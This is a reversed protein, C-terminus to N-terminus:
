SEVQFLLDRFGHEGVSGRAFVEGAKPFAVPNRGEIEGAVGAEGADGPGDLRCHFCALGCGDASGAGFEEFGSRLEVLNGCAADADEGGAREADALVPGGLEEAVVSGFGHEDAYPHSGGNAFVDRGEVCEQAGEAVFEAVMEVELFEAKGVRPVGAAEVLSGGREVVM